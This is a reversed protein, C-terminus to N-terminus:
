PVPLEDALKKTKEEPKQKSSETDAKLREREREKETEQEMAAIAAQLFAEKRSIAADIESLEVQASKLM